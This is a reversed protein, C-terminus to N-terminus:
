EGIPKQFCRLRGAQKTSPLYGATRIKLSWSWCRSMSFLLTAHSGKKDLKTPKVGYTNCNTLWESRHFVIGEFGSVRDKVRDGLAFVFGKREKGGVKIKRKKDTMKTFGRFLRNVYKSILKM